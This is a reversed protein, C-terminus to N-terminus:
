AIEKEPQAALFAEWRAQQTCNPEFRVNGQEDCILKGEVENGEYFAHFAGLVGNHAPALFIM